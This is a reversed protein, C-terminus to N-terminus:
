DLLSQLNEELNAKYARWTEGDVGPAAKRKLGLFSERLRDVTCAHHWLATFRVGRDRQAVQRIRTLESQLRDRCQTRNRNRKRPNGKAPGRGEMGEASGPAGPGKNPSKKPVVPGDSKGHGYM